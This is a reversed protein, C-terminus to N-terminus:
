EEFVYDTFSNFVTEDFLWHRMGGKIHQARCTRFNFIYVPRIRWPQNYRNQWDFMCYEWYGAKYNWWEGTTYGGKEGYKNLVAPNKKEGANYYVNYPALAYNIISGLSVRCVIMVPDMDSLRYPDHAYSSAVRRRSAFYVGIGGWSSKSATFTGQTWKANRKLHNNRQGSSAIMQGATLDTGHYMTIAPIFIDIVTWAVGEILVLGGHWIPYKVLRYPFMYIWKWVNGAGEDRSSPQLVEYSLDYLETIGYVFINYGIANILRLPTIVINLLIQVIGLIERVPTKSSESLWSTKFMYRWPETLIHQLRNSWFLPASILLYALWFFDSYESGINDIVKRLGIFVAFGLGVFAGVEGNGFLLHFILAGIGMFIGMFVLIGLINEWFAIVVLVILIILIIRVVSWVRSFFSGVSNSLGNFWSSGSHNASSASASPESVPQVPAVYSVYRMSVYGQLGYPYNVCGWRASGNTTVYEVQVMEGRRLTNITSYGTGPGRRVNLKAATVRCKAPYDAAQAVTISTLALLLLTVLIRGIRSISLVKIM